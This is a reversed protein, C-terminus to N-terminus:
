ASEKAALNARQKESKDADAHTGPLVECKFRWLMGMAFQNHTVRLRERFEREGYVCGEMEGLARAARVCKQLDGWSIECDSGATTISGGVASCM